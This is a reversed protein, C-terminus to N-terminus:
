KDPEKIRCIESKMLKLVMLTSTYFDQKSHLFIESAGSIIDILGLDSDPRTSKHALSMHLPCLGLQSIHRLLLGVEDETRYTLLM